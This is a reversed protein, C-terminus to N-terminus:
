VGGEAEPADLLKIQFLLTSHAPIDAGVARDGYGLDSPIVFEFTEGVRMLPVGEQWGMILRSLPFTAPEGRDRTSDFTDGTILKGVYHITVVSGKPPRPEDRKAKSIRRYHLGSKTVKVGPQRAHWALYADQGANWALQAESPPAPQALAPASLTLLVAAAAAAARLIM